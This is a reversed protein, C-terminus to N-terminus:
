TLVIERYNQQQGGTLFIGQVDEQETRCLQRYDPMNNIQNM